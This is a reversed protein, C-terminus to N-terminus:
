CAREVLDHIQRAALFEMVSRHHFRVRGYGSEVFIPRELLTVVEKPGWDALLERPDIPTAGSADGDSGASYRITLRRSLIVALALRQAGTQAKALPLEAKERRDPRASLRARVHSQIQEFHARLLGHERWDDCLEILDQPKRAFERAHKADIAALLAEPAEVGRSQAFEIIQPGTLPLLEVERSAPPGEDKTKSPGDMAIRIFEDQSDEHRV